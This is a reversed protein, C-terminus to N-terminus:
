WTRGSRPPGPARDVLITIVTRMIRLPNGRVAATAPVAASASTSPAHPLLVSLAVDDADDATDATVDAAAEAPESTDEAALEIADSPALAALEAPDSIDDAALEASLAILEPDDASLEM